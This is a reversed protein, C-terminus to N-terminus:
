QQYKARWYNKQYWMSDSSVPVIPAPPFSAATPTGIAELSALLQEQEKHLDKKSVSLQSQDLLSDLTTDLSSSSTDHPKEHSNPRKTAALPSSPIEFRESPSYHSSFSTTSVAPRRETADFLQQFQAHLVALQTNLQNVAAFDSYASSPSVFSMGAHVPPPPAPSPAQSPSSWAMPAAPPTPPQNSAHMSATSNLGHAALPRQTMYVRITHLQDLLVKNNDEVRHVEKRLFECEAITNKYKQELHDRSEQAEKIKTMLENRETLTKMNYDDRLTKVVQHCKRVWEESSRNVCAAALQPIQWELSKQMSAVDDQFKQTSVQRAVREEELEQTLQRVRHEIQEKERRLEQIIVNNEADINRSKLQALEEKLELLQLEREEVRRSEKLRWAEAKTFREEVRVIEYDKQAVLSELERQRFALKELELRKEHRFSSTEQELSTLQKELSLKEQLYADRQAKQQQEKRKWAEIEVQLQHNRSSETALESKTSRLEKEIAMLKEQLRNNDHQYQDCQKELPAVEQSKITKLQVHLEHSESHLKSNATIHEEQAKKLQTQVAHVQDSRDRLQAELGSREHELLKVKRDWEEEQRKWSFTKSQAEKTQEQETRLRDSLERLEKGRNELDGTLREIQRNASSVEQEKLRLDRDANAEKAEIDTLKIAAEKVKEELEKVSKAQHDITDQLVTLSAAKRDRDTLEKEVSELQRDRDAVEKQVSELQERIARLESEHQRRASESKDALLTLERAHEEKTRDLTKVGEQYKKECDALAERSQLLSQQLEEYQKQQASLETRLETTAKKVEINEQQSQTAQQQQSSKLRDNERQVSQLQDQIAKLQTTHEDRLRQVETEKETLKTKNENVKMKLYNAEKADQKATELQQKTTTLDRQLQEVQKTLENNAKELEKIKNLDAASTISTTTAATPASSNMEQFFPGKITSAISARTPSTKSVVNQQSSLASGLANLDLNSSTMAPVSSTSSSGSVSTPVSTTNAGFLRSTYSATLSSATSAANRSTLSSSGLASSPRLSEITSSTTSASAGTPKTFPTPTSDGDEDDLLWSRDRGFGTGSTTNERSSNTAKISSTAKSDQKISSVTTASSFSPAPQPFLSDIRSLGGSGTKSATTAPKSSMPKVDDDDSVDDFSYVEVNSAETKIPNSAALAKAPQLKEEVAPKTEKTESLEKKKAKILDRYHGDLPHEWISEETNSNFYYLTGDETEGQEWDDPLEALLAEQVLSMLAAEKDPDVGLSKAHDRLAAQFEPTSADM